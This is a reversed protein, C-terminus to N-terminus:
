ADEFAYMREKPSASCKSSFRLPTSTVTSDGPRVSVAIILSISPTSKEFVGIGRIATSGTTRVARRLRPRRGETMGPVVFLTMANRPLRIMDRLPIERTNLPIAPLAM